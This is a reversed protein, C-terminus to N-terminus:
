PKPVISLLKSKVRVTTCLNHSTINYKAKASHRDERRPQSNRASPIVGEAGGKDGGWGGAM